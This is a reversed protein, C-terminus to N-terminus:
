MSSGSRLVSRSSDGYTRLVAAMQTALNKSRLGLTQMSFPKRSIKCSIIPSELGITTAFETWARASILSLSGSVLAKVIEGLVSLFSSIASFSHVSHPRTVM